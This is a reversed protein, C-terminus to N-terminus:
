MSRSSINQLEMNLNHLLLSRQQEARVAREEMASLAAQLGSYQEAIARAETEARNNSIELQQVLEHLIANKLEFESRADLAERLAQQQEQDLAQLRRVHAHYEVEKQSAKDTIAALQQELYSIHQKTTSKQRHDIDAHLLQSRLELVTWELDSREAAAAQGEIKTFPVTIDTQSAATITEVKLAKQLATNEKDCAGSMTRHDKLVQALEAALSRLLALEDNVVLHHAGSVADLSQAIDFKWV